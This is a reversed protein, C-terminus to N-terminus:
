RPCESRLKQCPTRYRKRASAFARMTEEFDTHGYGEADRNSGAVHVNVSLEGAKRIAEAPDKEEISTHFTDLHLKTARLWVDSVFRLGQDGNNILFTEYRNIPEVAM